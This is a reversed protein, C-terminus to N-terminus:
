GVAARKAPPLAVRLIANLHPACAEFGEGTPHIEDYWARPDALEPVAALDSYTFLGAFEKQMEALVLSGFGDVLLHRAFAGAAASDKLVKKMPGYLWPGVDDKLIAILGINPISLDGAQGIRILPAYTHSIVRFHKRKPLVDQQVRQLLHRYRSALREFLKHDVLRQFADEPELKPRKSTMWPEFVQELRESLADNGGASVALLDFPNNQLRDITAAVSRASLLDAATAGPKGVIMRLGDIRWASHRALNPYLPTSFWSDGWYLVAPRTALWEDVAARHRKGGGTLERLEEWRTVLTSSM